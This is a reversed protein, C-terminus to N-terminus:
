WFRGLEAALQEAQRITVPMWGEPLLARYPESGYRRDILLVV